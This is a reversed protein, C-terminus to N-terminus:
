QGAGAADSLLAEVKGSRVFETFGLPYALEGSARIGASKLREIPEKAANEKECVAWIHVPRSIEAVLEKLFHQEAARWGIMLIRTVDRASQRFAALHNEPCAFQSKTVTPIALAPVWARGLSRPGGSEGLRYLQIGKLSAAWRILDSPERGENPDLLVSSEVLNEWNVSGHPKFLQCPRAPPGLMYDDISRFTIGFNELASEFLTDYNFTM